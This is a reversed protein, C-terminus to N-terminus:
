LRIEQFSNLDFIAIQNNLKAIQLADVENDAIIVADYYYLGSENDLWGGICKVRDANAIVYDVVKELGDAGFSNQTESCAVAYGGEQVSLMEANFTFGESNNAAIAAVASLLVIKDM